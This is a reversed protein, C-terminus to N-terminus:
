PTLLWETTAELVAPAITQDILGYEGPTGREAPQLLHNLGPFELVMAKPNADLAARMAELNPAAVVQLDRSGGIALVPIRTRTLTESPDVDLLSLFLPASVTTITADVVQELDAPRPQDLHTNAIDVQISMLKKFAARRRQPDAAVDLAQAHAMYHVEVREEPVGSELLIARAQSLLLARGSVAPASLLVLRAVQPDEIAVIAAITAGEGHGLIGIDDADVSPLARLQELSARADQALTQVTAERLSGGSGGVGRDDVRLTAFGARALHDAWVAFSRHEAITHDRDQAGSGTLLLLAPHPGEGAPLTLTGALDVGGAGKWSRDETTYPFPGM